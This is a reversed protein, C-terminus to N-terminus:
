ASPEHTTTTDSQESNSSDAQRRERVNRYIGLGILVVVFLALAVYAWTSYEDIVETVKHWQSGLYVGFYILVANWIASGLTTYFSFRLLGMGQIGAPISILSRVGPIVRGLFISAEGYKDFFHMAKDVDTGRVLPIKEGFARLRHFGVKHGLYYLLLAGLLSASTAWILASLASFEGLSATFGAMPLVAESPIPPFITEVLIAIGVGPPGLTEMLSVIWDVIQQM